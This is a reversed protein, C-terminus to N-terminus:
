RNSQKKEEIAREYQTCKKDLMRFMRQEWLRVFREVAVMAECFDDASLSIFAEQKNIAKSPDHTNAGNAKKNIPADCNAIHITWPYNRSPDYSINLNSVPAFTAGNMQFTCYPNNKQKSYPPFASIIGQPASNMASVADSLAKGIEEIEAGPVPRSNDPYAQIKLWNRMKQLSFQVTNLLATSHKEREPSAITLKGLRAEMAAQYLMPMAEVDVAFKVTTSNEGTGKTYDCITICITSNAAHDSGGIGHINAFDQERAKILRSSFDVVKDKGNVNWIKMSIFQESEAAPQVAQTPSHPQNMQPNVPMAPVGGPAPFQLPPNQPAASQQQYPQSYPAPNPQPGNGPMTGRRRYRAAGSTYM